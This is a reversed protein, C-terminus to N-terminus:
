GTQTPLRASQEGNMQKAGARRGAAIAEAETCFWPEGELFGAIFRVREDM